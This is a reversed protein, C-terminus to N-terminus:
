EDEPRLRMRRRPAAGTEFTAVAATVSALTEATTRRLSDDRRLDDADVGDLARGVRAVEDALAPDGVDREAFLGVFRRLKEVREDRFIAGKGAEREATLRERLEEALKAFMARLGAVVEARQRAYDAALQERQEAAMADTLDEDSAGDLRRWTWAMAFANCADEVAPYDAERFLAGLRTRDAEISAAYAERFAAVLRGRRERHETLRDHVASMLRVPIAYMGGVATLAYEDRLQARLGCDASGIARSQKVDLIKKSMALQRADVDEGNATVDVDYGRVQRSRGLRDFSLVLWRCKALPDEVQEVARLADAPLDSLDPEPEPAPLPVPEPEVVPEPPVPTPAPAAEMVPEPAPPPPPPPAVVPEPAPAAAVPEPVTAAPAPAEVSPPADTVPEPAPEPEFGDDEPEPAPAPAQVTAGETWAVLLARAVPRTTRPLDRVFAAASSYVGGVRISTAADAAVDLAGVIAGRTAAPADFAALVVRSIELREASDFRAGNAALAGAARAEPETPPQSSVPLGLTGTDAM